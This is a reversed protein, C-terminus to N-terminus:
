YYTLLYFRFILECVLKVFLFDFDRLISFEYFVFISIHRQHTWFKLKIISFFFSHM